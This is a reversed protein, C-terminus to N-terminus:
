GGPRQRRMRHIGVVHSAGNCARTRYDDIEEVDDSYDEDSEIQLELSDNITEESIDKEHIFIEYALGNCDLVKILERRATEYDWKIDYKAVYEIM